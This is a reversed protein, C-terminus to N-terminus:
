SASQSGRRGKGVTHSPTAAGAGTRPGMSVQSCTAAVNTEYGSLVGKEPWQVRLRRQETGAATGESGRPAGRRSSSATPVTVESETCRDQITAWPGKSEKRTWYLSACPCGWATGTPPSRRSTVMEPRAGARLYLNRSKPTCSPFLCPGSEASVLVQSHALPGEGPLRQGDKHCCHSRPAVLGMYKRPGPM